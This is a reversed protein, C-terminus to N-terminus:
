TLVFGNDDLSLELTGGSERMDPTILDFLTERVVHEIQRAGETTSRVRKTLETLAQRDAQLSFGHQLAANTSLRAIHQKIIGAIDDDSLSSFVFTHEIRNMLATGLDQSLHTRITKQFDPDLHLSSQKQVNGFGIGTSKFLEAGLNTTLIVLAHRFDTRKGTSDTIKGEDLIQLLLKQVDRHAKDFEDFLVVSYPRKRIEDTFKNREKFGVYGAPSGLLKSIGHAEAFESM